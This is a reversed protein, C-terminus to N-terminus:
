CQKSGFEQHDQTIGAIVEGVGGPEKREVEPPRAAHEVATQYAGYESAEKVQPSVLLGREPGHTIGYGRGNGQPLTDPSQPAERGPAVIPNRAVQRPCHREGTLVGLVLHTNRQADRQMRHLKIFGRAGKQDEAEQEPKM